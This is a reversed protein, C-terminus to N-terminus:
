KPDDKKWFALGKKAGAATKYQDVETFVETVGSGGSPGHGYVLAYGSIRGLKKFTRPTGTWSNGAADENSFPGSQRSIALGNASSGLASKPLPLVSLKVRTASKASASPVVVAAVLVAAVLGKYVLGKLKGG